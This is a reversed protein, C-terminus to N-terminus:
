KSLSAITVLYHLYPPPTGALNRLTTMLAKLSATAVAMTVLDLLWLNAQTIGFVM